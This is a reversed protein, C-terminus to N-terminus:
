WQVLVRPWLNPALCRDLPFASSKIFNFFRRRGSDACACEAHECQGASLRGRVRGDQATFGLSSRAAEAEPDRRSLPKGSRDAGRNPSHPRPHPVTHLWAGCGASWLRNVGRLRGGSSRAERGPWQRTKALPPPPLQDAGWPAPQPERSEGLNSHADPPGQPLPRWQGSM